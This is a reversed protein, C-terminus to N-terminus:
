RPRVPLPRGIIVPQITSPLSQLRSPLKTASSSSTAETGNANASASFVPKDAAVSTVGALAVVLTTFCLLVAAHRLAITFGSSCKNGKGRRLPSPM